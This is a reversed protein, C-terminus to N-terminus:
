VSWSQYVRIYLSSALFHPLRQSGKETDNNPSAKSKAARSSCNNERLSQRRPPMSETDSISFSSNFHLVYNNGKHAEATQVMCVCLSQYDQLQWWSLSCPQPASLFLHYLSSFLLLGFLANIRTGKTHYALVRGDSHSVLAIKHKSM